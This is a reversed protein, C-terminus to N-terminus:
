LLIQSLLGKNYHRKRHSRKRRPQKNFLSYINTKKCSISSLTGVGKIQDNFGYPKATGLEKIWFLERTRRLSTLLTPNESSHYVKELIQVRMDDVSHDPQHVHRHLLSQGGKKIASRHGNMRSRLSRGTEGVYVLGCHVCHIGYIVNTSGCSLRDYSITKYERGTLNSKFSQDNIFINCTHCSTAGCQNIDNSLYETLPHIIIDKTQVYCKNGAVLKESNSIPIFTNDSTRYYVSDDFTLCSSLIVNQLSVFCKQPPAVLKNEPTQCKTKEQHIKLGRNNKCMKGCSCMKGSRSNIPNNMTAASDKLKPGERADTARKCSSMRGEKLQDKWESLYKLEVQERKSWNKAYLDISELFMTEMAKWNVRNPERYKPGKAVLERLKANEIVRLDGTIVHGHPEYCFKSEKFTLNILVKEM